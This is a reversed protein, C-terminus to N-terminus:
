LHGGGTTGKASFLGSPPRLLNEQYDLEDSVESIRGEAVARSALIAADASEIDPHLELTYDNLVTLISTM